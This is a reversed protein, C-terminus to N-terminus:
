QSIARRMSFSRSKTLKNIKLLNQIVETFRNKLKFELLQCFQLVKVHRERIHQVLEYQDTFHVPEGDADAVRMVHVSLFRCLIKVLLLLSVLHSLLRIVRAAILKAGVLERVM